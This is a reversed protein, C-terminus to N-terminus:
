VGQNPVSSVLSAPESVVTRFYGLDGNSAVCKLSADTTYTWSVFGPHCTCLDSYARVCLAADHMVSAFVLLQYRVRYDFPEALLATATKFPDQQKLWAVFVPDREAHGLPYEGLRAGAWGLIARAHLHEHKLEKLIQAALQYAHGAREFLRTRQAPDAPTYLQAADTYSWALLQAALAVDMTRPLGDPLAVMSSEYGLDRQFRDINCETWLQHKSKLDPNRKDFDDMWRHFAIFKRQPEPWLHRAMMRELTQTALLELKSFPTSTTAIGDRFKNWTNLAVGALGALQAQDM